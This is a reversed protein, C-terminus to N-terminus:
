SIIFLSPLKLFSYPFCSFLFLLSLYPFRSPLFLFLFTLCSPTFLFGSLFIEKM